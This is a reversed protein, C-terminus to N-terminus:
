SIDTLVGTRLECVMFAEGAGYESGLGCDRGRRFGFRPYYSAHGMLVVLDCGDAKCRALGERILLSGIGKCQFEPLVGVPGLALGRLRTPASEIIIPSFMIHGVVRDNDLAVLSVVARGNQRLLDVLRSEVDRGFARAHVDHIAQEDGPQEARLMPPRESM